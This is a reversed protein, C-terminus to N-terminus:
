IRDMRDISTFILWVAGHSFAGHQHFAGRLYGASSLGIIGGGIILPTCYFYKQYYTM